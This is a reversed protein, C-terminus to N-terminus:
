IWLFDNHLGIDLFKKGKKKGKLLKVTEPINLDKIWKMKTYSTLYSDLEMRKHTFIWNEWFWKHSVMKERKCMSSENTM